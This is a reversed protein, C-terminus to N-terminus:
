LRRRKPAPARAAATEAAANAAEQLRRNLTNNVAVLDANCRRLRACEEELHNLADNRDKLRKCEEVAALALDSVFQLQRALTAIRRAAETGVPDSHRAGAAHSGRDM